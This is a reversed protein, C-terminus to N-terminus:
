VVTLILVVDEVFCGYQLYKNAYDSMTINNYTFM